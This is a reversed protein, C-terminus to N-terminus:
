PFPLASSRDRLFRDLSSVCDPFGHDLRFIGAINVLVQEIRGPDVRVLGPDPTPQFVLDINEGILRRLMQDTKLVLQNLDVLQPEVTQRRSFSLLQGVLAAGREAAGQVQLLRGLAPHGPTLEDIRQATPGDYQYRETAGVVEATGPFVVPAHKAPRAPGHPPTGGQGCPRMSLIPRM